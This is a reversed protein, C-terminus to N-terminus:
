SRRKVEHIIPIVYPCGSMIMAMLTLDKTSINELKARSTFINPDLQDEKQNIVVGDYYQQAIYNISENNLNVNANNFVDSLVNFIVQYIEICVQKDVNKDSNALYSLREGLLNTIVDNFNQKKKDLSM